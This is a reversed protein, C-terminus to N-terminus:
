KNTELFDIFDEALTYIMEDTKLYPDSNDSAAIDKVVTWLVVKHQEPHDYDVLVLALKEAAWEQPWGSLFHSAAKLYAAAHTPITFDLGNNM